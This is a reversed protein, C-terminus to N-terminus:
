TGNIALYKGTDDAYTMQCFHQSWIIGSIHTHKHAYREQERGHQCSAIICLCYTTYKTDLTFTQSKDM